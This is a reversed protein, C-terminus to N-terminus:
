EPSTVERVYINVTGDPAQRVSTILFPREGGRNVRDNPDPPRIGGPYQVVIRTPDNASRRLVASNGVASVLGRSSVSIM